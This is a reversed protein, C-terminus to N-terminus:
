VDVEMSTGPGFRADLYTRNAADLLDKVAEPTTAEAIGRSLSVEDVAAIARREGRLDAIEARLQDLEARTATPVESPATDYFSM